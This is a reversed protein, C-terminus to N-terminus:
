WREGGGWRRAGSSAVGVFVRASCAACVVGVFVWVRVSCGVSAAACVVSVDVCLVVPLESVTDTWDLGRVGGGAGGRGTM